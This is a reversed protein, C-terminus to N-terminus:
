IKVASVTEKPLPKQQAFIGFLGRYLWTMYESERLTEGWAIPLMGKWRENLFDLLDQKADYDCRVKEESMIGAARCACLTGQCTGMGLRTRRRLDSLSSIHFKHISARIEDALIEECECVLSKKKIESSMGNSLDGYRSALAHKQMASISRNSHIAMDEEASAGPLKDTATTCSVSLNMKECILDTAMEAMLRYTVLKGGVISIFGKLGDRKEHDLLVIGRSINRGGADTDAAVLPRIGAYARLIRTKALVPALQSGGEILDDVEKTTITLNDIEEYPIRMSTTGIVSVTEGPVLIDADAPKRCRNLVINNLRHGMILLSGKAPLMKVPNIDAYLTMRQGWIGAANVVIPAYIKKETKTIKDWVSVGQVSDGNRLVKLVEHYTYVTAGHKKADLINSLTLRFPDVSGDPVKVAGTIQPNASPEIRLAEKPDIVEAKIGARYCAEVFVQQYDLDDEPLTLFLGGSPTLCHPAIKKLINNEDICEKASEYDHVAYRAGSHLLGHNRGTAGTAIDSQELLLVAIGRKACDRAIGAGTAGGGIIIADFEKM